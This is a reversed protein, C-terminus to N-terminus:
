YDAPKAFGEVGAVTQQWGALPNLYTVVWHGWPNGEAKTSSVHGDLFTINMQLNHVYYPSSNGDIAAQTFGSASLINGPFNSNWNRSIYQASQHSDVFSMSITPRPIQNMRLISCDKYCGDGILGYSVRHEVPAGNSGPRYRDTQNDAPCWYAQPSKLYGDYWMHQWWAGAMEKTQVPSGKAWYAANASSNPCMYEKSDNSYMTWALAINKLNSKCKIASAAERAKGLAPLLIAILLAIISIVVLLEILTFAKRHDSDQQGVAFHTM